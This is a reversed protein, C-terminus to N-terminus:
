FGPTKENKTSLHRNGPFAFCQKKKLQKTNYCYKSINQYIGNDIHYFVQSLMIELNKKLLKLKLCGLRLRVGPCM